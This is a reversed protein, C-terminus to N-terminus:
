VSGRRDPDGPVHQGRTRNGVHERCHSCSPDKRPDLGKEELEDAMLCFQFDESFDTKLFTYAETMVFTEHVLISTRDGDAIAFLCYEYLQTGQVTDRFKFVVGPGLNSGSRLINRLEKDDIELSIMWNRFVALVSIRPAM